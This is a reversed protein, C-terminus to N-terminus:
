KKDGSECLMINSFHDNYTRGISMNKQIKIDNNKYTWCEGTSDIFCVWLLDHEQGYDIVGHAWARGKPTEMPLPPNLQTFM